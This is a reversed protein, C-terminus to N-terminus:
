PPTTPPVPRLAVVHRAAIAHHLEIYPREVPLERDDCPQWGAPTNEGAFLRIAAAEPTELMTDDKTPYLGKVAIAYIAPGPATAAHLTPLAFTTRGDGGFRWGLLSFLPQHEAIDVLAGDCALWGDPVADCDFCRVEGILPTSM